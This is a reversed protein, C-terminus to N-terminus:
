TSRLRLPRLARSSSPSAAPPLRRRCCPLTSCVPPHRRCYRHLLRTSPPRSCPVAVWAMACGYNVSNVAVLYPLLRASGKLRHFPLTDVLRWSCDIVSVGHAEVLARDDASVSQRGEPSLVLGRFACGVQLPVSARVHLGRGLLPQVLGVGAADCDNGPSLAQAWHVAERRM